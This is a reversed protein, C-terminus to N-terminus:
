LAISSSSHRTVAAVLRHPQIPKYLVENAGAELAEDAADAGGTLMLVPTQKRHEIERILRIIDVGNTAPFKYSVTIIDFHRSGLLADAVDRGSRPVHVSWGQQSFVAVFLRAVAEDGEIVLVSLSM